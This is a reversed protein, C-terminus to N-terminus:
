TGNDLALRALLERGIVAARWGHRLPSDAGALLCEVDRRDAIGRPPIGYESSRVAILDLLTDACARQEPSLRHHRPQTPWREPPEARAAAIRALLAEGHRQRTAAPLGRIRHLEDSNEPMRRALEVLVADDLIWRRPRDHSSAQEERWAALAQLVAPQVGRLRHHERVRRWAEQPQLRYRNPDTLMRFDEGLPELWGRERLAALQRPYLAGLYRVDDAAYALWEPALPRHRWDARTHAKALDVGLLQQVLAAYGIQNGCGLVLAAVQTDFVPTPVAGHLHFLLELDQHAAHLVKTVAPDYLIDLLPDLSPLALPDICAVHGPVAIQILCLQPYFTQERIFETDLALWSADRLRACFDALASQDVIYLDNM